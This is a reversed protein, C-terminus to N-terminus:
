DFNEISRAVSRRCAAANNMLPHICLRDDTRDASVALRDAVRVPLLSLRRDDQRAIAWTRHLSSASPLKKPRVTAAAAALTSQRGASNVREAAAIPCRGDLATPPDSSRGDSRSRLPLPQVTPRVLSNTRQAVAAAADTTNRPLLIKYKKSESM